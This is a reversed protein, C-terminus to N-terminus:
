EMQNQILVQKGNEIKKIVSEAQFYGKDDLKLEGTLGQFSKIKALQQVAETPTPKESGPFSEYAQAILRVIDYAYPVTNYVKSHFRQEYSSIFAEDPPKPGEYWDGEFLEPHDMEDFDEITTFPAQFQMEKAQKAILDIEPTVAELFYIEPNSAKLKALVTRFDREGSVFSEEATVSIKNEALHEKVKKVMEEIGADKMDLIAIKSIHRRKLEDVFLRSQTAPSAYVNFNYVGDALGSEWCMRLHLIKNQTAMPSVVFAPNSWVTVIADIKDVHILKSAIVATKASNMQNDEYIIDYHFRTNGLKEVSLTMANRIAEGEYAVDGSLPLIVGIKVTPKPAPNEATVLYPMSILILIFYFFKKM